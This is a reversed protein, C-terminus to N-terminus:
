RIPHNSNEVTCEFYNSHSAGGGILPILEAAIRNLRWKGQEDTTTIIQGFNHNQPLKLTAPDPMFYNWYVAAGAVPNGDLDVVKGGIPVPWDIRAVYNTPIVYGNLPLWTLRTDAFGDKRTTLELKVTNTPYEVDCEGFRDSTIFKHILNDSLFAYYEIPVNPIPKGSDATVLKLHLVRGDRAQAKTTAMVPFNTAPLNNANEPLNTNTAAMAAVPETPIDGPNEKSRSAYIYGLVGLLAATMGVLAVKTKLAALVHTVWLSTAGGAAAGGLVGSVVKAALQAPAAGVANASLVGALVLATLSVGQKALIGHLKELAREVRMRAANETLGIKGGIEAFSRNEFHRLLVAERDPEDLKHMAEDLLPSLQLWDPQSEPQSLIANMAHIEQERNSRRQETRRTNAAIFRTSTYLWATLSTHSILRGAKRALDAFVSQTVDEALHADGNVQRLAASYVLNIHRRALEAFASESRDRVYRQLLEGDTMNM